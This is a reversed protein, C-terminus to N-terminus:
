VKKKMTKIMPICPTYSHFAIVVIAYLLKLTMQFM